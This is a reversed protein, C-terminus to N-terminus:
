KVLTMSRTAVFEGVELRYLYVGGSAPAGRGDRGDWRSEYRGPPLTEGDVLRRVLRGRLDYIALDVAGAAALEYSIITGPNFPNPRCADLRTARPVDGGDDTGSVAVTNLSFPPSDGAGTEGLAPRAMIAAACAVLVLTRVMNTM